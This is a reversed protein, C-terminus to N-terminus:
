EAKGLYTLQGAAIAKAQAYASAWQEEKLEPMKTVGFSALLGYAEERPKLAVIADRMDKYTIKVEEAEIHKKTVAVVDVAHAVVPSKPAPDSDDAATANTATANMEGRMVKMEALVEKLYSTTEILYTKLETLQEEIHM